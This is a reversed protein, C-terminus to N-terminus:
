PLALETLAFETFKKEGGRTYELRIRDPAISPDEIVRLGYLEVVAANAPAGAESVAKRAAEIFAPSNYRIATPVDMREAVAILAKVEYIDSDKYKM